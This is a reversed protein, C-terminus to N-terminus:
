AVGAPLTLWEITTRERKPEQKGRETLSAVLTAWGEDTVLDEVGTRAAHDECLKLGPVVDIPLCPEFEVPARLKLVPAKSATKTCGKKDCGAM